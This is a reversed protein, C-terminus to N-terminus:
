RVVRASNLRSVLEKFAEESSTILITEKDLFAYFLVNNGGDGYLVRADQNDIIRDEFLGSREPRNSSSGASPEEIGMLVALDAGMTKEWALMEAFAGEFYSTKLILFVDRTTGQYAGFGWPAELSRILPMGARTELAEFFEPGNVIRRSGAAYETIYIHAVEGVAIGVVEAKERLGRQLTAGDRGDLVFEEEVNAVILSSFRFPADNREGHKYEYYLYGGGGLVGGLLVLLISAVLTKQGRARREAEVPTARDIQAPHREQREKEKLRHEAARLEEERKLIEAKRRAEEDQWSRTTEKIEQEHRMARADRDEAERKRADQARIAQAERLEEQARRFEEQAKLREETKKVGELRKENEAIAAGVTSIKKEKTARAIDDKFTRLAQLNEPRAEAASGTSGLDPHKPPTPLAGGSLQATVTKQLNTSPVGLPQPAPPTQHLSKKEDM